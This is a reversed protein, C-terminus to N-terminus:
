VTNPAAPRDGTAVRADVLASLAQGRDTQLQQMRLEANLLQSKLDAVHQAAADCAAEARAARQQEVQLDTQLRRAVDQASEADRRNEALMAQVELSAIQAAVADDLAASMKAAPVDALEKPSGARALHQQLQKHDLLLQRYAV